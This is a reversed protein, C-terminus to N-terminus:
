IRSAKYDESAGFGRRKWIRKVLLDTASEFGRSRLIRVAKIKEDVGFGQQRWNM